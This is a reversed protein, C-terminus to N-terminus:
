LRFVASIVYTFMQDPTQTGPDVPQGNDRYGNLLWDLLNDIFEALVIDAFYIVVSLFIGAAGFVLGLIAFASKGSKKLSIAGLVIAAVGTGFFVTVVVSTYGFVFCSALAVIGLVFATTAIPDRKKKPSAAFGSSYGSDGIEFSIETKEDGASYYRATSEDPASAPEEETVTSESAIDESECAAPDIYEEAPRNENTDM